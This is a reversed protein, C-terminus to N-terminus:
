KTYLEVELEIDNSILVDPKPGTFSVGYKQRDFTMKAKFVKHGDVETVSVDTFVESHTKDKVSLNVKNDGTFVASAVSFKEIEFFDGTGLHGILGEPTSKEDYNDDTTALSKMDVVIGGGTVMDGTTELNGSKIMLTGTHSKILPIGGKWNVVSKETDIQYKMEKAQDANGPVTEEQPTVPEKGGGCSALAFVFAISLLKINKM